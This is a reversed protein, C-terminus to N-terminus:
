APRLIVIVNLVNLPLINFVINNPNQPTHMCVALFSDATRKAKELPGAQESLAGRLYTRPISCHSVKKRQTLDDGYSRLLQVNEKNQIEKSCNSTNVSSSGGLYILHVLPILLDPLRWHTGHYLTVFHPGASGLVAPKKKETSSFFLICIFKNAYEFDRLFCKLWLYM